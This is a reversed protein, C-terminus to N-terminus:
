TDYVSKAKKADELFLYTNRQELTFFVSNIIYRHYFDSAKSANPQAKITAGFSLSVDLKVNRLVTRSPKHSRTSVIKQSKHIGKPTLNSM